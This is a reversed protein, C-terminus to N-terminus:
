NHNFVLAAIQNNKGIWHRQSVFSRAAKHRQGLRRNGIV